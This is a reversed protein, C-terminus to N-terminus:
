NLLILFYPAERPDRPTLSPSILKRLSIDPFALCRASHDFLPPTDKKILVGVFVNGLISFGM